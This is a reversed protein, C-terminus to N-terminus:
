HPPITLSYIIIIKGAELCSPDRAASVLDIQGSYRRADATSSLQDFGFPLFAARHGRPIHRGARPPGQTTALCHFEHPTMLPSFVVIHRAPHM